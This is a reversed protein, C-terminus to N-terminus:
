QDADESTTAGAGEDREAKTYLAQMQHYYGVFFRAQDELRLATPFPTEGSFRGLIQSM